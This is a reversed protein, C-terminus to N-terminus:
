AAPGAVVIAIVAWAMLVALAVLAPVDWGHRVPAGSPAAAAEYLRQAYEYQARIHEPTGEARASRRVSRSELPGGLARVLSDDDLDFVVQWRWELARVREWPVRIVRLLNQVTAGQEDVELSSAFASVYVGWLALLPWPALLLTEGLGGRVLADGLLFVVVLASIGFIPLASGPRFM